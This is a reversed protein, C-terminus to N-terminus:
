WSSSYEFDAWEDKLAQRLVDRTYRLDELYSEDYETSGFFFGEQTPLLERAVTDDQIVQGQKTVAKKQGEEFQYGVTVQGPQLTSAELVREVTHLLEALTERPVYYTGCNDVEGQVHEVFWRHIANAKRWYAVEETIYTVKAPNIRVEPVVKGGRTATVQYRESPPTHAFNGVYTKKALYMDLGM